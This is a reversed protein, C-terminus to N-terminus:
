NLYNLENTNEQYLEYLGAWIMFDDDDGYEGAEFLKYFMASSKKYQNEYKRLDTKIKFNAKKLESIKYSILDHFFHEKNSHKGILYKVRKAINEQLDLQLTVM